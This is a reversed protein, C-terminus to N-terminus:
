GIGGGRYGELLRSSVFRVVDGKSTSGLKQNLRMLHTRLTPLAICLRDALIENTGGGCIEFLVERERATLDTLARSLFTKEADTLELSAGEARDRSAGREGARAGSGPSVARTRVEPTAGSAQHNAHAPGPEVGLRNTARSQSM